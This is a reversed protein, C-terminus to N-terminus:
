SNLAESKKQDDSGCCCEGCWEYSDPHFEGSNSSLSRLDCCGDKHDDEVEDEDEDEIFEEFDELAAIVFDEGSTANRDEATKCDVVEYSDWIQPHWEGCGVCHALEDVYTLVLPSNSEFPREPWLAELEQQDGRLKLSVSHAM